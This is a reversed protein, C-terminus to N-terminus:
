SDVWSIRLPPVAYAVAHVELEIPGHGTIARNHFDLSRYSGDVIVKGDLRLSGVPDGERVVVSTDRMGGTLRGSLSGPVYRASPLPCTLDRSTTLCRSLKERVASTMATRGASTVKVDVFVAPPSDFSVYGTGPELALYPTDLRIPVAGPFLLTSGRPLPAGLVTERQRALPTNMKAAVAVADLRWDGSSKHLAIDDSVSVDQGPFALRYSASVV